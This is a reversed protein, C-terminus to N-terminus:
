SALTAPSPYSQLRLRIQLRQCLRPRDDMASVTTGTLDLRLVDPHLGAARLEADRQHRRLGGQSDNELLDAVGPEAKRSHCGPKRKARFRSGLDNPVSFSVVNGNLRFCYPVERVDM